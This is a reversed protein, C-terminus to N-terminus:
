CVRVQLAFITTFVFLAYLEGTEGVSVFATSHYGM